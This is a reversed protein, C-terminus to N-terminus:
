SQNQHWAAAAAAMNNYAQTLSQWAAAANGGNADLWQMWPNSAGSPASWWDAAGGGSSGDSVVTGLDQSGGTMGSTDTGTSGTAADTPPIFSMGSGDGSGAQGTPSLADGGITATDSTSGTSGTPTTVGTPPVTTQGDTGTSGTAEGSGSGVVTEGTGSGVITDSTGSGTTDSTGSGNSADSSGSGNSADNSGVVTQGSGASVYAGPQGGAPVYFDYSGNSSLEWPTGGSTLGDYSVGQIYLNRDANDYAMGNGDYAGALDNLFSVTVTHAGSGWDGHLNFAQQQGQWAVATTTLVGGVQQGDVAVTFQADGQFPDENMMLTLTDSGAGVDVAGPTTTPTSPADAPVATTDNVTFVANGLDLPGNPPFLPSTYIPTTGNTVQQGDYSVGDVYLNRDGGRGFDTKDGQTGSNNAFTVTVEHQGPGFNGLFTFTESQGAAHSAAVSQLGGIQQGDVNVTFQADAGPAGPTGYSDGSM